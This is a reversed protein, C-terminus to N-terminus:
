VAKEDKDDESDITDIMEDDNYNTHVARTPKNDKKLFQKAKRKASYWMVGGVTAISIITAVLAGAFGPDLYM